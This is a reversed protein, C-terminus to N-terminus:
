LELVKRIKEVNDTVWDALEMNAQVREWIEDQQQTKRKLEELIKAIEGDLDDINKTFAKKYEEIQSQAQEFLANINEKMSKSIQSMIGVVIETVNVDIGEVVKETYSIHKPKWFKFWGFFGQREPNDRWRTVEIERPNENKKKLDELNQIQIRKFSTMNKFKYGEVKINDLVSEIMEKYEDLMETCNKFISDDLERNIEIECERQYTEASSIFQAILRDAETKDIKDKGSYPRSIKDLEREVKKQEDKINPNTIKLASVKNKYKSYLEKSASYKNQADLIQKQIKELEQSDNALKKDFKTEMDIQELISLIDNIADKIKMPYAYKDVYESITEEVAPVGTHILAEEDWRDEDVHFEDVKAKLKEKVSPTLTAYEDMHLEKVNVFDEIASSLERAEKRTLKDGNKDKRILLATRASAPILTPEVIGFGKLYEEVEVLLEDITTERQEDLMDCKNVVFIFRDRSQKGARQMESAITRLLNCDDKIGLQTANMVYLVVANTRKIISNTLREHNEDRSNNPGPTDRLCLRIKNSKIAPIDGKVDIFHVKEDSNFVRMDDLSVKKNPYIITENDAGYCEAEWGKMEDFDLIRAVTATCAKNESPLLETHLLSNILTSKGSSMTAIVSVEFIGNKVEEYADFIDKGDKNKEKFEPIDCKKITEIVEDLEAIIDNDSKIEELVLSFKTDGKYQKFCYQLDEFDIRRGKFTIKVEDDNCAKAIEEALGAWNTTKSLIVQLRESSKARFKSNSGLEKGNKKFVIDVLYPNYEITFNTM